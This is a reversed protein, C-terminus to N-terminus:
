VLDVTGYKPAANESNMAASLNINDSRFQKPNKYSKFHGSFLQKKYQFHISQIDLVLAHIGKNILQNPDPFPFFHSNAFIGFKGKNFGEKLESFTYQYIFTNTGTLRGWEEMTTRGKPFSANAPYTSTNSDHAFINYNESDSSMHFPILTYFNIPTKIEKNVIHEVFPFWVVNFMDKMYVTDRNNKGVVFNNKGTKEGSIYPGYGKDSKLFEIVRKLTSAMEAIKVVDEPLANFKDLDVPIGKNLINNQEEQFVLLKELLKEWFKIFGVCTNPNYLNLYKPINLTKKM